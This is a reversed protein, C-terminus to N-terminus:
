NLECGMRANPTSEWAGPPRLAFRLRVQTRVTPWLDVLDEMLVLLVISVYMCYGFCMDKRTMGM